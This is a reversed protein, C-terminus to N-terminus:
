GQIKHVMNERQILHSTTEMIGLLEQVDSNWASLITDVKKPKGFCVIANPRDIKLYVDGSAACDHLQLEMEEMSLNCLECMRGLTMTTYYEAIVRINRQIVRVRLTSALEEFRDSQDSLFLYPFVSSNPANSCLEKCLASLEDMHKFQMPIIEPTTFLKLIHKFSSLLEVNKAFSVTQNAATGEVPPAPPTVAVGSDSTDMSNSTPASPLEESSNPSIAIPDEFIALSKLKHLMEVQETSHKSLLVFIITAKLSNVLLTDPYQRIKATNFINYWCQATEWPKNEHLYYEIMYINFKLKEEELASDDLLTKNMKRSQILTRIYDKSLLNLRVQELIFEVKEKKELSGYTEVHLDQILSCAENLEGRSELMRAMILHLRACEAEVYMKGETVDKLTKILEMKVEESPTKDIYTMAVEVIATIVLKSQARKKCLVAITANLKVWDLKAECMSIMKICIEKLSKFDGALRCQRELAMLHNVADELSKEVMVTAESIATAVDESFDTKQEQVASM